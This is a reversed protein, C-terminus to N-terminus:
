HDWGVLDVLTTEAGQIAHQAIGSKMQMHFVFFDSGDSSAVVQQCGEIHPFQQLTLVVESLQEVKFVMLAMNANFLQLVPEQCQCCNKVHPIGNKKWSNKLRKQLNTVM